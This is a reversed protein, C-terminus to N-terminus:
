DEAKRLEASIGRCLLFSHNRPQSVQDFAHFLLLFALHANPLLLLILRQLYQAVCWVFFLCFSGPKMPMAGELPTDQAGLYAGVSALHLFSDQYGRTAAASKGYDLRPTRCALWWYLAAVSTLELHVSSHLSLSLPLEFGM